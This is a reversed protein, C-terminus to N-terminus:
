QQGPEYIFMNQISDAVLTATTVQSATGFSNGNDNHGTSISIGELLKGYDCNIHVYHLLGPQVTYALFPMTILQRSAVGGIQYTVPVPSHSGVLLISGSLYLFKYGQNPGFYMNPELISSLVTDQGSSSNHSAPTSANTASDLGVYFRISTYNGSPVSAVYYDELEYSKLILSNPIEYWSGNENQISIDSIYFRADNLAMLRGNHDPYLSGLSDVELTDIDTHLHIGLSGNAAKDKTKHCGTIILVAALVAVFGLKSYISKKM